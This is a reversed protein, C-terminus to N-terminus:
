EMVRQGTEWLKGAAEFSSLRTGALTIGEAACREVLEKEPQRGSALLVFPVDKLVAVAAV